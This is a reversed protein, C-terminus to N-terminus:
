DHFSVRVNEGVRAQPAKEFELLCEVVRVPGRQSDEQLRANGYLPSVRVVRATPLPAANADIDPVVSARMGVHVAALYTENIEARVILPRQPLLVLATGSATVHSGQQVGLSVVTGGEPARVELQALRVRAQRLHGQAVDVEAAAVAADSEAEQLAQQADDSRQAQAAGQRVAEDLRKAALRLAPLREARAKQRARALRLESEAVQVDAEAAEGALRFLMQGRQVAQGESVALQQVVGEQAASIEILGGQVEVKGRAMAVERAGAQAAPSAAAAPSGQSDQCAALPIGASLLLSCWLVQSRSIM